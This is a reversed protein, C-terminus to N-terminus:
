REIQKDEARKRRVKAKLVKVLVQDVAEFPGQQEVLQNHKDYLANV